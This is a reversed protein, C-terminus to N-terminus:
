NRKSRFLRGGSRHASNQRMRFAFILAPLSIPFLLGILIFNLHFWFRPFGQNVPPWKDKQFIRRSYVTPHHEILSHMRKLWNMLPKSEKFLDMTWDTLGSAMCEVQGLLGFDTPGPSDGDFFSSQGLIQTFRELMKKLAYDAPQNKISKMLAYRGAEILIVFYWCIFARGSITWLTQPTDMMRSWGDIFALRKQPGTRYLAYALFLKELEKFNSKTMENVAFPSNKVEGFQRIIEFSDASITEDSWLCSPMILGHKLYYRFTPLGRLKVTTKHAAMALVVAQVWPSHSVGFVFIPHITNQSSPKM